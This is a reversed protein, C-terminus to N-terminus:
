DTQVSAPICLHFVCATKWRKRKTKATTTLLSQPRFTPCRSPTQDPPECACWLPPRATGARALPHCTRRRPRPTRRRRPLPRWFSPRPSAAACSCRCARPSPYFRPRRRGCSGLPARTPFISILPGYSGGSVPGSASIVGSWISFSSSLATDSSRFSPPECGREVGIRLLHPSAPLNLPGGTKRRRRNGAEKVDGPAGVVVVERPCKAPPRGVLGGQAPSRPTPNDLFIDADGDAIFARCTRETGKGRPGLSADAGSEAVSGM